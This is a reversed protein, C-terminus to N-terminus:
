SSFGDKMLSYDDDMSGGVIQFQRSSLVSDTVIYCLALVLESFFAWNIHLFSKGSLELNTIWRGSSQSLLSKRSRRVFLPLGNVHSIFLYLEAILHAVRKKELIFVKTWGAPDVNNVWALCILPWLPRTLTKRMYVCVLTCARGRFLMEGYTPAKSLFKTRVQTIKQLTHKWLM